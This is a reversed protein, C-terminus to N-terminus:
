QGPISDVQKQLQDFQQKQADPIDADDALERLQKVADQPSIEGKGLKQTIDSARQRAEEESLGDGGCASLGLAAVLLTPLTLSRLRSM